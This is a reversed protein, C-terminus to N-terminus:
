VKNYDNIDIGLGKLEDALEHSYCEYEKIENNLQDKKDRIAEKDELILSYLYPDTDMIQEIETNTKKIKDNLNDIEFEDEIDINLKELETIILFYTEQLKEFDNCRYYMTALNWLEKMNDNEYLQPNIDPHLVNVIKKYMKKIKLLHFKSVPEGKDRKMAKIYEIHEIYPKLESSLELLAKNKNYHLGNNTMRYYIAIIKKYKICKIKLELLLEIQEGFTQIYQWEYRQADKELSLKRNLLMIYEQRRADDLGLNTDVIGSNDNNNREYEM